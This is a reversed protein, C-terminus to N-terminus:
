HSAPVYGLPNPGHATCPYQIDDKPREYKECEEKGVPHIRGRLVTLRM